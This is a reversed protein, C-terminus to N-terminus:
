SRGSSRPGGALEATYPPDSLGHYNRSTWVLDLKEPVELTGLSRVLVSVNAFAPNAAIAFPTNV